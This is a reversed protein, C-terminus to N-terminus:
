GKKPGEDYSRPRYKKQVGGHDKGYYVIDNALFSLWSGPFRQSLQILEAKRSEVGNQDWLCQLALAILNPDNPALLFGRRYYPWAEDIRKLRCLTDGYYIQAMPWEPAIEMARRNAALREDLKGRAGVMVSYNLHAKASEPAAERTAKWFALDDTYDLAHKRSAVIQVAFFALVLRMGIRRRRADLLWAAVASLCLASGVVPLYWFREARVTPLLLVFNAHPAYAVPLWLAGIAVARTIGLKRTEDLNQPEADRRRWDLILSRVFAAVGLLPLGLLALAGLISEPFVLRKPIPEAAFSYDGSLSWPFLVQGLGRAFVRLAGAVRHPADANVLPNNIPDSPLDPQRFWRLFAQFGRVLPSADSAVAHLAEKAANVPFFRRRLETYFVLALAAAAFALIARPVRYGRHWAPSGVLAAWAVLPVGVIASEKSFLGFSLGLFVGFPMAWIPLRLASLALLVGLGGLVDAIGVVGTVAETIVASAVFVAGALWSTRRDRTLSLMLGAVLAANLAHGVVNVWHHLFPLKSLNWLLRWVINPIPRYSGISRDPPLGWFDRKWVDWFGVDAGNVYPNALLAEQEDFIYNSLPSRVFLLASAILAPTLAVWFTPDQDRFYARAAAVAALLRVKLPNPPASEGSPDVSPNAVNESSVRVRYRPRRAPPLLFRHGRAAWANGGTGTGASPGGARAGWREHYLAPM